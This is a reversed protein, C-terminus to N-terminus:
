RTNDRIQEVNELLDAFGILFAGGTASLVFGAVLGILVAIGGGFSGESLATYTTAITAIAAIGFPLGVIILLIWGAARLLGKM